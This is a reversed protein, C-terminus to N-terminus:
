LVEKIYATDGFQGYCHFTLIGHPRPYRDDLGSSSCSLLHWALLLNLPIEQNM